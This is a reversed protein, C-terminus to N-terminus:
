AEWPQAAAQRNVAPRPANSLTRFARMALVRAKTRSRAAKMSVSAASTERSTLFALLAPIVGQTLSFPVLSKGQSFIGQPDNALM